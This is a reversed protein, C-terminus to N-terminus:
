FVANLNSIARQEPMHVLSNWWAHSLRGGNENTAVWGRKRAKLTDIGQHCQAYKRDSNCRCRSTPDLRYAFAEDDLSGAQPGIWIGEHSLERAALWVQHRFLWITITDLATLYRERDDTPLTETMYCLSDPLYGVNDKHFIPNGMNLHPHDPYISYSIIPDVVIAVPRGSLLPERLPVGSPNSYVAIRFTERHLNKIARRVVKNEIKHHRIQCEPHHFVRGQNVWVDNNAIIDAVVLLLQDNPPLPTVEMLFWGEGPMGNIHEVWKVPGFEDVITQIVEQDM